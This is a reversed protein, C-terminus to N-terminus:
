RRATMATAFENDSLTHGEGTSGGAVIGSVGAGVMFDVQPKLAEPVLDGKEDFPMSLPPMIGALKERVSAAIENAM